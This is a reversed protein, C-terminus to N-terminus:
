PRGLGRLYLRAAAWAAAAAAVAVGGAAAPVEWWGLHLAASRVPMTFPASLPLFSLFTTLASRPSTVGVVAGGLGLAFMPMGIWVMAGDVKDGPRGFAGMAAFLLGYLAFALVFWMVAALLGKPPVGRAFIALLALTPLAAITAQILALLGIGVTKGVLFRTPPCTALMINSVGSTTEERVGRAIQNGYALFFGAGVVAGFAAIGSTVNLPRLVTFWLQGAAPPTNRAGKSTPVGALDLRQAPAQAVLSDVEEPGVDAQSLRQALAARRLAKFLLGADRTQAEKLVMVHTADVAVASVRGSSLEARGTAADPVTTVEIRTREAEAAIEAAADPLGAPMAGVVALRHTRTVTAHHGLSLDGLLSFLMLAGTTFRFTRSRLGETVERRCVLGFQAFTSM